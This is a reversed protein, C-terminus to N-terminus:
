TILVELVMSLFLVFLYPSSLKFMVWSKERSPHLALLFNSVTIFLGFILATVLYVLGFDGAFYLALSLVYMLVVTAMTCRTTRELSVVAPLMPVRVKRYDEAHFIALNWIHNPIWLVVVAAMLLAALNLDGRVAAWASLVPIGGSFGGLIINFASRRKLLLSYILVNDAFGVLGLVFVLPSITWALALSAATLLLGWYLAREPPHIRGSPIPRARTRKMVLDMDRDIYCTLTNAGACGLALALLLRFVLGPTVAMGGAAVIMAALGTFVLLLVSAPKTVEVYAWVRDFLSLSRLEGAHSVDGRRAQGPSQSGFSEEREPIM